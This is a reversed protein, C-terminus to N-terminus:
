TQTVFQLQMWRSQHNRSESLLEGSTGSKLSLYSCGARRERHKVPARGGELEEREALRRAGSRM